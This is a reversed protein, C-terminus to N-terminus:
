NDKKNIKKEKQVDLSTEAPAVFTKAIRVWPIKEPGAMVRMLLAQKSATTTM